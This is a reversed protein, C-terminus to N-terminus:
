TLHVLRAWTNIEFDFLRDLLGQGLLVILILVIMSLQRLRFYSPLWASPLAREILASGDLPPIPLLNFVGLMVNVLGGAFLLQLLIPLRNLDGGAVIFGTLASPTVVLRFAIGCIAALAFNTLPGALAVYVSQNRPHRLRDVRVPVPKAYGFPFGVIVLTLIPLVISGFPDIHRMPDASLRGARKATDDGCINAVVGHSVEHLIVSPIFTLYFLVLFEQVYGRQVAVAAVIGLLVLVALVVLHHSRLRVSSRQRLRHVGCM